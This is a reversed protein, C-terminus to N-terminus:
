ADPRVVGLIQMSGAGTITVNRGPRPAHVISGDGIYMGVHSADDFYIISTAPACTRSPSTGSGTGSSRRPARSAIDPPPGRRRPSGRATSRARGRPAGCTRSASRTRRTNSRRGAARRVGQDQHGRPRRLELWVSQAEQAAEEELKALREKEKTELRSELQEAAAIKKTIKKQAEAKAERNSELKKWQASADKEYQRLDQQTRTM